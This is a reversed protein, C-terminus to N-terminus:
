KESISKELAEVRAQLNKCMGWLLTSGLRAYDLALMNGKEETYHDYVINGFEDPLASKVDDAIFGIRQRTMDTRKYQKVQINDFAEQIKTLDADVIDTKIRRDSLQTLSTCSIHGAVSLSGSM